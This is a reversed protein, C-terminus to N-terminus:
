PVCEPESSEDELKPRECSLLAPGFPTHRLTARGEERDKRPIGAIYMPEKHSGDGEGSFQSAAALWAMMLGLPRGQGERGLRNSATGTRTLVCSRHLGCTAQFRSNKEYFSIISGCRLRVVCDAVGRGGEYSTSEPERAARPGAPAVDALPQAALGEPPAPPPLGTSSSATPHSVETEMANHCDLDNALLPSPPNRAEGGASVAADPM